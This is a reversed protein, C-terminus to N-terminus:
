FTRLPLYKVYIQYLLDKDRGRYKNALDLSRKALEDNGNLALADRFAEGAADTEGNRLSTVGRNFHSAVLMAQVNQNGPDQQRLEQLAAAADQWRGDRLLARANELMAVKQTAQDLMPQIEPPLSQIEAARALADRAAMYDGTAFARRGAEVQEAFVQAAPRGDITGAAEARRKRYEDILELARVHSPDGAPVALLAQIAREYDGRGALQEAQQIQAAADIQPTDATSQSMFYWAAVAAAIVVVAVVALVIKTTGSGGTATPQAAAAAGKARPRPAAQAPDPPVMPEFGPAPAGEEEEFIDRAHSPPVADAPQSPRGSALAEMADRAGYHGPEIRLVEEYKARAEATNGSEQAFAASAMLEEIKLEDQQKLRRAKDIRESAADNTVDILFIRSWIDIAAQYEAREFAADGESLLQEIQGQDEESTEVSATSFDFTQGDGTSPVAFASGFADSAPPQPAAPQAPKAEEEFTFGFDSGGASPEDVAFGGDPQSPAFGGFGAAEDPASQGGFSFGSPEPEAPPEPAPAPPAIDLEPESAPSTIDLEPAPEAPSEFSGFSFASPESASDTSPAGFDFSAPEDSTTEVPSGFGFGEDAPPATAQQASGEILRQVEAVAPHSPDLQRAKEFDTAAGSRNGAGLKHRASTIFQQIFPEADIREQAENAIRQAEINTLDERLVGSAIDLARAFDRHELAQQASELPSGSSTAAPSDIEPLDALLAEVDLDAGPNRLKQDLQQAPAFQPDIRLIFDCGIAAEQTNGRLYSQAVQRFTSIVRERVEAALSPNGPYSSANM